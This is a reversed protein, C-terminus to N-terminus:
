CQRFYFVLTSEDLEIECILTQDPVKIGYTDVLMYDDDEDSNVLFLKVSGSPLGDKTKKDYIFTIEDTYDTETATAERSEDNIVTHYLKINTGKVPKSFGLVVKDHNASKVTVVPVSTDKVYDFTRSTKFVKYGAYDVIAYSKDLGSNNVFVTVPGEIM